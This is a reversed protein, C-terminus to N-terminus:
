KLPLCPSFYVICYKSSNGGGSELEDRSRRRLSNMVNKFGSGSNRSSRTLEPAECCVVVGDRRSAPNSFFDDNDDLEKIVVLVPDEEEEETLDLINLPDDKRAEWEAIGLSLFFCALLLFLRMRFSSGVAVFDGGLSKDVM